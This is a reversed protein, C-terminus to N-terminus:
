FHYVLGGIESGMAYPVALFVSPLKSKGLGRYRHPNTSYQFHPGLDHVMPNRFFPDLVRWFSSTQSGNKSIKESFGAFVPMKMARLAYMQGFTDFHGNQAIKAMKSLIALIAM